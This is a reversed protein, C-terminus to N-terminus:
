RQDFVWNKISWPQGYASGVRQLSLLPFHKIKCIGTWSSKHVLITEMLLTCFFGYQIHQWGHLSQHFVCHINGPTINYHRYSIGLPPHLQAQYSLEGQPWNLFLIIMKGAAFGRQLAILGLNCWYILRLSELWCFDGPPNSFGEYGTNRKKFAQKLHFQTVM